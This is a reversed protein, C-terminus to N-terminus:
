LFEVGIVTGDEAYDVIVHDDLPVTKTVDGKKVLVYSPTTIKHSFQSLTIEM